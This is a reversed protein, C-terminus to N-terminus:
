EDILNGIPGAIVKGVPVSRPLFSLSSWFDKPVFQLDMATAMRQKTEIELVREAGGGKGSRFSYIHSNSIVLFPCFWFISHHYKNVTAPIYRPDLHNQSYILFSITSKGDM